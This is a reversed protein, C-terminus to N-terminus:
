AQKEKAWLGMLRILVRSGAEMWQVCAWENRSHSDGGGTFLNPTLIGMYSLRSGDTGGRIPREDLQLGEDRIARRALESVRPEKEIEEKMNKYGISSGWEFKAGKYMGVLARAAEVFRKERDLVKEMKFDRIIFWCECEEVSGKIDMPHVFGERDSTTEPREGAPILGIVQSMLHVANVMRGRATGPHNSLGSIKMRGNIATFSEDQFDGIIGGDITYARKAGFEEVPFHGIGNAGEEDPTFAIWVEGHPISSDKKLLCLAHMIQAIGAKDDTGLLTTGDSTIMDMGIAASLEPSTHLGLEIGDALKITSGDWQKHLIPKVNKGPVGEVTDLHAMFGVAPPNGLVNSPLMGLVFCKENVSVKVLGLLNLEDELMRALDWQGPSSPTKDSGTVSTTDIRCYRMFKEAIDENLLRELNM